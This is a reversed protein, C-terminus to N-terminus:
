EIINVTKYFLFGSKGYFHFTGLVSKHKEQSQRKRGQSFCLIEQLNNQCQKNWVHYNLQDKGLVMM